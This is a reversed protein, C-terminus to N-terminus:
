GSIGVKRSKEIMQDYVTRRLQYKPVRTGLKPLEYQKALQALARGIRDVRFMKGLNRQLITNIKYSSLIITESVQGDMLMAIAERVMEAVSETSPQDSKSPYPM